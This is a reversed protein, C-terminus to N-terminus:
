DYQTALVKVKRELEGCPILDLVEITSPRLRFLLRYHNSFLENRIAQMLYEPVNGTMKMATEVLMEGASLLPAGRVLHRADITRGAALAAIVLFVFENAAYEAALQELLRDLESAEPLMGELQRITRKDFTSQQIFHRLEESM